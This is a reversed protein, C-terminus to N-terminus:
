YLHPCMFVSVHSLLKWPLVEGKFVAKNSASMSLLIFPQFPIQHLPHLPVLATNVTIYTLASM